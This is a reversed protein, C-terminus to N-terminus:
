ISQDIQQLSAVSGKKRSGSAEYLGGLGHRDRIRALERGARETARTMRELLAHDKRVLAHLEELQTRLTEARAGGEELRAHLGTTAEELEALLAVKEAHLELVKELTGATIAAIEDRLLRTLREILLDEAGNTIGSM